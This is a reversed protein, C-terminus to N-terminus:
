YNTPISMFTNMQQLTLASPVGSHYVLKNVKAPNYLVTSGTYIGGISLYDTVGIANMWLGNDSGSVFSLVETVGNLSLIYNSGNSMIYGYVYGNPPTNTSRFVNNVSLSADRITVQIKNVAGGNFVLQFSFRGATATSSSKYFFGNSTGSTIYGSFFMVGSTDGGFSNSDNYYMVDNVGDFDVSNAALTPQQTGTPQIFNRTIGLWSSVTALDKRLYMQTADLQRPNFNPSIINVRRSMAVM